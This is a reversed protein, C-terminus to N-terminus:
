ISWETKGIRMFSVDEFNIYAFSRQEDVMLMMCGATFVELYSWSVIM